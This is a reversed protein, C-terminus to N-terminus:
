RTWVFMDLLSFYGDEGGPETSPRPAATAEDMPLSSPILQSVSSIWM